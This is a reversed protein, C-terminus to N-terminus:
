EIQTIVIEVRPDCADIFSKSSVRAVHKINDDVIIYEKLGDIYLKSCINDSDLPKNKFYANVEIDVPYEYCDGYRLGMSVMYTRVLGHVRKAEATRVSHHQGGYFKNWSMPREDPIVITIM